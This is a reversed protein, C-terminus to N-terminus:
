PSPAAAGPPATQQINYKQVIEKAKEDTQALAILDVALSQLKAQLEVSQKVPIDRQEIAVKLKDRTDKLVTSQKATVIVQYILFCFVSLVLLLVPVFLSHSGPVPSSEYSYPSDHTM